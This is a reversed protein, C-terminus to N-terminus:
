KSWRSGAMVLVKLPISTISADKSGVKPALSIAMSLSMITKAIEGELARRFNVKQLFDTMGLSSQDFIEYGLSGGKPLGDQAMLLRARDVQDAPVMISGGNGRIEYPIALEDLKTVIEGSDTLDLDGYLLTMDGTSLRTTVFAFFAILGIAVAGIAALRAPGLSRLTQSFADM